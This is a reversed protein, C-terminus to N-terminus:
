QSMCGTELLLRQRAIRAPIARPETSLLSELTVWEVVGKAGQCNSEEVAGTNGVRQHTSTDAQVRHHPPVTEACGLTGIRGLAGAPRWQAVTECQPLSAGCDLVGVRDCEHQGANQSTADPRSAS